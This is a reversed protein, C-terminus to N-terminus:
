EPRPAAAAVRAAAHRVVRELEWRRDTFDAHTVSVGLAATVEGGPGRVPAAVGAVGPQYEEVEVAAGDSRIRMLERDLARRDGVTQPALRPMGRRGILEAPTETAADDTM